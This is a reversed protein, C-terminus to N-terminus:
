YGTLPYIAGEYRKWNTPTGEPLGWPCVADPDSRRAATEWEACRQRLLKVSIRKYYDKRYVEGDLTVMWHTGINDKAVWLSLRGAEGVKHYQGDPEMRADKEVPNIEVGAGCDSCSYSGAEYAGSIAKGCGTCSTPNSM